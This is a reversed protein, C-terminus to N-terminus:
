DLIYGGPTVKEKNFELMIVPTVGPMIEQSIRDALSHVDLNSFISCCWVEMM